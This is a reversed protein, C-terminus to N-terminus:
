SNVNTSFIGRHGNLDHSLEDEIQNLTQSWLQYEVQNLIDIHLYSEPNREVQRLAAYPSDVFIIEPERLSIQAYIAKVAETAKQRDIPETSLAIARWKERYVPILAEQEPTLKEIM